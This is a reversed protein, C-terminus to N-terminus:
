TRAVKEAQEAETLKIEKRDVVEDVSGGTAWKVLYRKDVFARSFTTSGGEVDAGGFYDFREISEKAYAVAAKLGDPDGPFEEGIGHYAPVAYYVREITGVSM